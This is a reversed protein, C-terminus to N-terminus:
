EESPSLAPDIKSHLKLTKRLRIYGSSSESVAFVFMPLEDM